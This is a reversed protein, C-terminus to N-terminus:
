KIVLIKEKKSNKQLCYLNKRKKKKQPSKRTKKNEKSKRTKKNQEM